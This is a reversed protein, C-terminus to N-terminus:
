RCPPRRDRPDREFMAMIGPVIIHHATAWFVSGSFVGLWFTLQPDELGGILTSPGYSLLLAGATTLAYNIIRIAIAVGLMMMAFLFGRAIIKEISTEGM